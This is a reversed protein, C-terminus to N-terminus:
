QMWGNTIGYDILKKLLLLHVMELWRLSRLTYVEIKCSWHLFFAQFSHFDEHLHQFNTDAFLHRYIQALVM